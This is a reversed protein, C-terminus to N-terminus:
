PLTTSGVSFPSIATTLTRPRVNVFGTKSLGNLTSSASTFRMRSRVGTMKTSMCASVVLSFITGFAGLGSMVAAYIAYLLLLILAVWALSFNFTEFDSLRVNGRMMSKFHTSIQEKDASGLVDVQREFEDNYGKNLRFNHKGGLGYVALIFLSTALCAVFISGNLSLIIMLTGVIAIVSNM